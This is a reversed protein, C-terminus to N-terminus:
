PSCSSLEGAMRLRPRGVDQARGMAEDAERMRDRKTQTHNTRVAGLASKLPVGNEPSEDVVLIRM